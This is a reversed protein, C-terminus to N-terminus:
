NFFYILEIDYKHRDDGECIDFGWNLDEPTGTLTIERIRARPDRVRALIQDFVSKDQIFPEDINAGCINPGKLSDPVDGSGVWIIGTRKGAKIKFEFDSKNYRYPIKRGDLLEKITPIITRKAVKYSPSVYMYPVPANTRAMSIARKGSILTKGGGYGMVLARIFAPSNWWDRQHQWMGGKTVLGAADLIPDEQRWFSM